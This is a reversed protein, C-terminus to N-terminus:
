ARAAGINEDVHRVTRMGALATAVGGLTRTFEIARQADTTCRPFLDHVAAPLGNTLRSQM